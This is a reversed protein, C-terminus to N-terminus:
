DCHGLGSWGDRGTWDLASESEQLTCRNSQTSDTFSDIDGFVVVARKSFVFGYAIPQCDPYQTVANARTGDFDFDVFDL